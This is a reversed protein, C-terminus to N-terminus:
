LPPPLIAEYHPELLNIKKRCAGCSIEGHRYLSVLNRKGFRIKNSCGPCEMFESNFIQRIEKSLSIKYEDDFHIDNEWLLIGIDRRLNTIDVQKYAREGITAILADVVEIAHYLILPVFSYFHQWQALRDDDNSFVFNFNQPSTRYQEFNTVLHTAHNWLGEFGYPAAKMYRLEYLFETPIWNGLRSKEIAAQIIQIKREKDLATSLDLAKPGEYYFRQMFDKPDILLWELYLLNEKFPKRLLSFSVALKAKVSCNLAEYVFHCFDSLLAIIVQKYALSINVWEYGNTELWVWLDDGSLDKIVDAHLKSDWK